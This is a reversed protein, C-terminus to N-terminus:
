EKGSFLRKMLWGSIAFGLFVGSADALFDSLDCTRNSLPQILEIVAGLLMVWGALNVRSVVGATRGPKRASSRRSLDFCGSLYVGLCLLVHVIKDTHEWWTIENDPLPDPSLTLWLVLVTTVVTWGWLPLVCALGCLRRWM